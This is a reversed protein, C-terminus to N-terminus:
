NNEAKAKRAKIKDNMKWGHKCVELTTHAWQRVIDPLTEDNARELLQKTVGHRAPESTARSIDVLMGELRLVLMQFGLDLSEAVISRSDMQDPIPEPPPGCM